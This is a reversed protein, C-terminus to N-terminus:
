DFWAKGPNKTDLTGAVLTWGGDAVIVQAAAAARGAYYAYRERLTRRNQVAM